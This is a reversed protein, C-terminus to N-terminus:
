GPPTTPRQWELERKRRRLAERVARTKTEGTLEAVEAALREIEPDKIALVLTQANWKEPRLPV